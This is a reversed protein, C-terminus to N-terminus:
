TVDITRVDFIHCDVLTVVSADCDMCDVLQLEHVIDDVLLHSMANEDLVSDLSVVQDLVVKNNVCSPRPTQQNRILSRSREPNLVGVVVENSVMCCSRVSVAVPIIKRLRWSAWRCIWIYTRDVCLKSSKVVIHSM